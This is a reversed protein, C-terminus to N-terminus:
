IEKVNKSGHLQLGVISTAGQPIPARSANSPAAQQVSLWASVIGCPVTAILCVAFLVAASHKHAKANMWIICMYTYIYIYIMTCM